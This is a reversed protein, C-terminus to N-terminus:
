SSSSLFEVGIVLLVTFYEYIPQSSVVLSVNPVKTGCLIFRHRLVDSLIFDM